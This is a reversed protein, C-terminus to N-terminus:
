PAKRLVHVRRFFIESVGIHTKSMKQTPIIKLGVYFRSLFHTKHSSKQTHTLNETWRKPLRGYEVKKVFSGIRAYESITHLIRTKAKVERRAGVSRYSLKNVM